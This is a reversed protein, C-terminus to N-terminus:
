IVRSSLAICENLLTPLHVLTVLVLLAPAASPLFGGASRALAPAEPARLLVVVPRRLAVAAAAARAAGALAEAVGVVGLRL